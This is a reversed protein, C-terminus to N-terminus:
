NVTYLDALEEAQGWFGLATNLTVDVPHYAPYWGSQDYLRRALRGKILASLSTEDIDAPAFVGDGGEDSVVIDLTGVFEYLDKLDEHGFEFSDSFTWVDPYEEKTRTGNLDLWRRVFKREHGGRLLAQTFADLTDVRVIYDPLIGGGAVVTRGGDTRFKLSDPVEDLLDAMALTADHRQQARKEELYVSRDGNEYATQILRGSPTYYRAVTVRLSSGDNLLFQNQVLGKGFTRRGVILARDHDQLAGAVIESASASNPDVLVIVPGDEWLGGDSARFTENADRTRGKQSVIVQGESLMEDSVRVAMSMYGGGNGRLDLVLREMGKGKLDRLAGRFEAHTTRAFRNLKIYGTDGDLMYAIDLTVIPVRDRTIEFNLLEAEGPRRITVTVDSGRPGKLNGRVDEDTFGIASRGDVAVIRDSTSLGVRSSPGGPIVSVVAITDQGEGGEILDYSIGIGEFTADFQENERRMREADIYISHPDLSKLMGQIADEAMGEHDVDEVYRQAVLVFADEMKKLSKAIDNDFMVSGLQVGALM